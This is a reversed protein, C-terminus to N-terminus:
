QVLEVWYHMSASLFHFIFQSNTAMTKKNLKYPFIQNLYDSEFEEYSDGDWLWVKTDICEVDEEEEKAKDGEKEKEGTSHM